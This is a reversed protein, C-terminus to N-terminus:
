DFYIMFDENMLVFRDLELLRAKSSKEKTQTMSFHNKFLSILYEALSLDCVM